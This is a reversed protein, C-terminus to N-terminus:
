KSERIDANPNKESTQNPYFLKKTKYILSLVLDTLKIAALFFM